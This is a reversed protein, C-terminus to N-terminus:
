LTQNAIKIHHNTEAVLRAQQQPTIRDCIWNWHLSVVDGVQLDGLYSLGDASRRVSRSEPEGLKLKGDVLIIPEYMAHATDDDFSEVVGWAIRCKDLTEIQTELMGTRTGVDFVFFSHHPRAGDPVKQAIYKHLRKPVRQTIKETLYEHFATAPLTDLLENGVWYADVVRADFPDPIGLAESMFLLNPYAAEFQMVLRNMGDDASDAVAYELLERDDPGGCYGLANPMFAYRAFTLRGDRILQQNAEDSLSLDIRNDPGM